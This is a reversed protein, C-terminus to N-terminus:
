YVFERYTLETELYLCLIKILQNIPRDISRIISSICLQQNWKTPWGCNVPIVPAPVSATLELPTASQSIM